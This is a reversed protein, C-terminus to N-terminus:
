EGRVSLEVGHASHLTRTGTHAHFLLKLRRGLLLVAIACVDLCCLEGLKSVQGLACTWRLFVSVAGFKSLRQTVLMFVQHLRHMHVWM